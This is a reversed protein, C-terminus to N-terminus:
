KEELPPLLPSISIDENLLVQRKEWRTLETSGLSPSLEPCGKGESLLGSTAMGARLSMRLEAAVLLSGCFVMVRM